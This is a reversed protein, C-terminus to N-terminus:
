SIHKVCCDAVVRYEWDAQGPSLASFFARNVFKVAYGDEPQGSLASFVFQVKPLCTGLCLTSFAFTLAALSVHANLAVLRIERTSISRYTRSSNFSASTRSVTMSGSGLGLDFM